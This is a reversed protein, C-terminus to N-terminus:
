ALQLLFNKGTACDTRFKKALKKNNTAFKYRAILILLPKYNIIVSQYKRYFNINKIFVKKIKMKKKQM